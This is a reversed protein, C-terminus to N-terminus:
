GAPNQPPSTIQKRHPIFQTETDWFVHDKMTVATFGGIRAHVLTPDANEKFQLCNIVSTKQNTRPPKKKLKPPPLVADVKYTPGYKEYDCKIQLRYWYM